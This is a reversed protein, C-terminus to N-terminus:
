VKIRRKKRGERLHSITGLNHGHLEDRYDSLMRPATKLDKKDVIHYRDFMSRTKHGTIKIALGEFIGGNVFIGTTNYFIYLNIHVVFGFGSHDLSPFGCNRHKGFLNLDQAQPLFAPSGYTNKNSYHVATKQKTPHKGGHMVSLSLLSVM